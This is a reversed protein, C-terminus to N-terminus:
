RLFAPLEKTPKYGVTKATQIDKRFEKHKELDKIPHFINNPLQVFEDLGWEGMWVISKLESADTVKLGKQMAITNFMAEIYFLRCNADVYNKIEALLRKSFMAACVMSYYYPAEIRNVIYNWHWDNIRDRKLFNNATVLDFKKYKENLNILADISPIFCDDEFVWINDYGGFQLRAFIWLFKDYAIVQKKIHTATESINCGVYGDKICASDRVYFKTAPHTTNTIWNMDPLGVFYKELEDSVIYVHAFNKNAIENAFALTNGNIEKCLFVIATKM